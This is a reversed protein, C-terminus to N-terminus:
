YRLPFSRIYRQSTNFCIYWSREKCPVKWFIQDLFSHSRTATRTPVFNNTRMMDFFDGYKERENIQLLNINFDGSIEASGGNLMQEDYYDRNQGHEIMAMSKGLGCFRMFLYITILLVVCLGGRFVKWFVRKSIFRMMNTPLRHILLLCSFLAGNYIRISRCM